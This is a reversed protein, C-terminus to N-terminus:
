RELLVAKSEETLETGCSPCTSLQEKLLEEELELQGIRKDYDDIKLVIACLKKHLTQLKRLRKDTISFNESAHKVTSLITLDEPLVIKIADIKKIKDVLVKLKFLRSSVAAVSEQGSDVDEFIQDVNDPLHIWHEELTRLANVIFGVREIKKEIQEVRLIRDKAEAIGSELLELDIKGLVILKESTSKLEGQCHLIKGKEKHIKSALLKVVRDIEDLKTISRIYTAIQGPSTYVLFHQDRQKQINIDSLNLIELVDKPPSNGFATFPDGVAVGNREVGYSNESPGRSRVVGYTEKHEEVELVASGSDQGRRIWNVGLPRNDKVLDLSLLINTKGQGTAGTIVNVGPSFELVTNKHTKFDKLLLRKFM